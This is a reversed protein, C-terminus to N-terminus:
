APRLWFRWFDGAFLPARDPILHRKGSLIGPEADTLNRGIQQTWGAIAHPWAPRVRVM